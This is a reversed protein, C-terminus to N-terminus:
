APQTTLDSWGASEAGLVAVGGAAAVTGGGAVAVAVVVAVAVAVVVVVTAGVAFRGTPRLDALGAATASAPVSQYSEAIVGTKSKGPKDLLRSQNNSM